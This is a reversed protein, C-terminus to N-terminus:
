AAREAEYADKDMIVNIRRKKSSKAKTFREKKLTSTKEGAARDSEKKNGTERQRRKLHEAVNDKIKLRDAVVSDM